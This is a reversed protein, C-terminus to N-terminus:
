SAIAEQRGAESKTGNSINRNFFKVHEFQHGIMHIRFIKGQYFEFVDMPSGKWVKGFYPDLVYCENQADMLIYTKHMKETAPNVVDLSFIAFRNPFKGLDYPAQMANMFVQYSVPIDLKGHSVLTYIDLKPAVQKLLKHEFALSMDQETGYYTVLDSDFLNSLGFVIPNEDVLTTMFPQTINTQM